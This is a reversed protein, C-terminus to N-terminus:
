VINFMALHTFFICGQPARLRIKQSSKHVKSKLTPFAMFGAMKYVVGYISVSKLLKLFCFQLFRFLSIPFLVFVIAYFDFRYMIKCLCM